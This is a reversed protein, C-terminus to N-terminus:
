SSSTGLNLSVRGFMGSFDKIHRNKLKNFSIDRVKDIRTACIANCDKGDTYPNKEFGNYSTTGTLVIEVEDAKNVSLQGDGAEVSGGKTRILMRVQFRMGHGEAYVPDKKGLYHPYAHLPAQGNLIIENGKIDISHNLLSVLKSKFSIMGKKEGSLKIAIIRDPFSAFVERKIKNNDTQYQVKIIGESMNLERRYGSITGPQDWDLVLDGMPLYCENYPGLMTSDILKQAEATKDEMLLKRIAPLYQNATYNQKDTPEGSWLTVENLKVTDSKVGGYVMGGLLGNGIPIAEHWGAAPQNWFAAVEKESRRGNTCALTILLLIITLTSKM